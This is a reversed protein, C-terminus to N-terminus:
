RAVYDPAERHGQIWQYVALMKEAQVQWTFPGVVEKGRTGMDDLEATTKSFAQGLASTLEGGQLEVRWGCHEREIQPWPTHVTTLVARGAAMAEAIVVGFNEFLTPLVFLEASAYARLKDDGVLEGKITVRASLRAADIRAKIKRLYSEDQHPGVILLDWESHEKAVAIFSEVLRDLGKRPHVRSLFLAYRRTPDLGLAQKADVCWPMAKFAELDVGNPIMAVPTKFGLSRVAEVEGEETAHLCHSVALMRRVFLNWALSKKWKSRKLSAGYLNSRLSCLLKFDQQLYTRFTAYAPYPWISHLHLITGPLNLRLQRGMVSSFYIGPFLHAPVTEHPLNYREIVENREPLNRRVSFLQSGVGLDRLHKSLLPVSNAPGGFSSDLNAVVHLVKVAPEAVGEQFQTTIASFQLSKTIM